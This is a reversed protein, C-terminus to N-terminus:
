RSVTLTFYVNRDINTANRPTKGSGTATWTGNENDLTVDYSYSKTQIPNHTGSVGKAPNAAESFTAGKVGTVVAADGPQFTYGPLDSWSGSSSQFAVLNIVGTAVVRTQCEEPETVVIMGDSVIPNRFDVTGIGPIVRIQGESYDSDNPSGASSFYWTGPRVSNGIARITDNTGADPGNVYEIVLPDTWDSYSRVRHTRTGKFDGATPNVVTQSGVLQGVKYCGDGSSTQISNLRATNSNVMARLEGDNYPESNATTSITIPSDGTPNSQVWVSNFYIYMRATNTDWWLDGTKAGAPPTQTATVKSGQTLTAIQDELAKIRSVLASSDFSQTAASIRYGGDIKTVTINDGEQLSLGADVVDKISTRLTRDPNGVAVALQDTTRLNGAEVPDLERIKIRGTEQTM